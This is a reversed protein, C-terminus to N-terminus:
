DSKGLGDDFHNGVGFVGDQQEQSSKGQCDDADIITLILTLIM